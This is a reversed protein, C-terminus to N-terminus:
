SYNLFNEVIKLIGNSCSLECEAGIAITSKNESHGCSFGYIAPTKIDSMIDKIIDIMSLDNVDAMDSGVIDSFEGFIIGNVSSLIGALKLQMLSRDLRYLSEGIDEIFLIKNDFNLSYKTGLMSCILALNGGVLQGRVDGPNICIAKYFNKVECPYSIKGELMNWANQWTFEILKDKGFDSAFLPGHFTILDSYKNFAFHLATIDSYGMFIKPNSKVLDYDIQDLIRTCGYGGRACFIAKIEPDIFFNMLDYLRDKDEGALYWKKNRIHPALKVKYGRLEINEVARQLMAPDKIVGAPAIIGISDGPKLPTPKLM